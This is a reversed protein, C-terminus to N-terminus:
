PAGAPQAPRVLLSAVDAASMSGERMREASVVLDPRLPTVTGIAEGIVTFTPTPNADDGFAFTVRRPAAGEDGKKARAYLAFNQPTVSVVAPDAVQQLVSAGAEYWRALAGLEAAFEQVAFEERDGTMADNIDFPLDKKFRSREIGRHLLEVLLWAEVHAPYRDDMDLVHPVPKGGDLFQMELTPFRLEIQLSDCFVPTTVAQRELDWSLTPPANDACFSASMRAPWLVSSRMQRRANALRKPDFQKLDPLDRLNM